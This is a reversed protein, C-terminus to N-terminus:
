AMTQQNRIASVHLNWRLSVTARLRMTIIIRILIANGKVLLPMRFPMGMAAGIIIRCIAAIRRLVRGAYDMMVIPQTVVAEMKLATDWLSEIIHRIVTDPYGRTFIRPANVFM